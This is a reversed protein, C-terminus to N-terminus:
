PHVEDLSSQDESCVMAEAAAVDADRIVLSLEPHSM